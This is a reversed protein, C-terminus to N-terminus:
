RLFAPNGPAALIDRAHVDGSRAPPHHHEELIAHTIEKGSPFVYGHTAPFAGTAVLSHAPRCRARPSLQEELVQGVCRDPRSMECRKAVARRSSWM